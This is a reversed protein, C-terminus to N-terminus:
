LLSRRRQPWGRTERPKLFFPFTLAGAVFGGVHAWWAVGGSHEEVGLPTTGSLVQTLFWWLLYFFAPIEFFVPYIVIPVMVTLRARPFLLFYAGLTGAIAGSAGIAPMDSSPNTLTHTFGAVLGCFLYFVLFRGHGMRDEVNDGFIWLTWMNGFLHLLGGHLFQSTVFPWWAAPQFGLVGEERDLVVRPVIGFEGLVSALEDAPLSLELWFVLANVLILLWTVLPASRRPVNDRFPLM